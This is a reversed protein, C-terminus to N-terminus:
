PYLDQAVQTLESRHRNLLQRTRIWDRQSTVSKHDEPLATIDDAEEWARRSIGLMAGPIHLGDSVREFVDISQAQKLNKMYDGVRGVSMECRRALHSATFGAGGWKAAVTFIVGLNRGECAEAFDPRAVVERPLYDPPRLRVM